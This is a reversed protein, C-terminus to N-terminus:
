RSGMLDGGSCRPDPKGSASLMTFSNAGQQIQFYTSPLPHATKGDWHEAVLEMQFHSKGDSCRIVPGYSLMPGNDSKRRETFQKHEIQLYQLADPSSWKSADIWPAQLWGDVFDRGNNAIPQIREVQGNNIRYRYIALRALVDTDVTGIDLRLAVGDPTSHMSPEPDFRRYGENQHFIIKALGSNRMPELVDLDFASWNSSCWPHGHAVALAWRSSGGNPILQYEFFDGFAGGVDDYDPAQWLLAKQWRGQKWEYILLVNDEACDVDFRVRVGVTFPQVLLTRVKVALDSAYVGDVEKPVKDWEYTRRPKQRHVQLSENLRDSLGKAIGAATGRPESECAMDAEVASDIDLKFAHIDGKTAPSLDDSGWGEAKVKLLRSQVALAQEAARHLALQSCSEEAVLSTSALLILASLIPLIRSMGALM